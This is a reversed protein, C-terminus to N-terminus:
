PVTSFCVTTKEASPLLVPSESRASRMSVTLTRFSREKSRRKKGKLYSSFSLNDIIDLILAQASPELSLGSLFDRVRHSDGSHTIKPDDVDHLLAAMEIIFPDGDESRSLLEALSRVREIHHWDHGSSENSLLDRVFQETKRLLENQSETLTVKKIM